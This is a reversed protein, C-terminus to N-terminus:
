RPLLPPWVARCLSDYISNLLKRAEVIREEPADDLQTRFLLRVADRVAMMGKIRAEATVTLGTSEFSSGNRIVVVGDRIAYAGDKIGTFSGADLVAPPPGRAEDRPIYAGEPLSEVAKRLLEPTLQGELTPEAGRYMTGELKMQGLMMEPHRPTTSTSLLRGTLVTSRRLGAFPM